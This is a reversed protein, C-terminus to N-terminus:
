PRSRATLSLQYARDRDMGCAENLWVGALDRGIGLFRAIDDIHEGVSYRYLADLGQNTLTPAATTSTM